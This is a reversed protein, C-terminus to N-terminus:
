DDAAALSAPRGAVKARKAQEMLRQHALHMEAVEEIFARGVHEEVEVVRNLLPGSLPSLKFNYFSPALGGGHQKKVQEYYFNLAQFKGFFYRIEETAGTDGRQSSGPVEDFRM